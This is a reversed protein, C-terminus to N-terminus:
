TILFVIFLDDWCHRYYFDFHHWFLYSNLFHEEETEACINRQITVASMITNYFTSSSAAGTYWDQPFAQFLYKLFTLSM